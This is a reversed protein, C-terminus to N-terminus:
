RQGTPDFGSREREAGSGSGGKEIFNKLNEKTIRWDSGVRFAHLNGNNIESEITNTSTKLIQAAEEITYITFDDM